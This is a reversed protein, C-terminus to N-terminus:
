AKQGCSGSHVTEPDRSFEARVIFVEVPSSIVSIVSVEFTHSREGRARVQMIRRVVPSSPSRGLASVVSQQVDMRWIQVYMRWDACGHAVPVDMRWDYM